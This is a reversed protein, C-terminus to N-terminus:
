QNELQVRCLLVNKKKVHVVTATEKLRVRLRDHVGNNDIITGIKGDM